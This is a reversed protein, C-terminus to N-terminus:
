HSFSLGKPSRVSQQWFTLILQPPQSLCGLRGAVGHKLNLQQRQKMRPHGSARRVQLSAMGLHGTVTKQWGVGAVGAGAARWAPRVPLISVRAAATPGWASVEAGRSVAGWNQQGLKYQVDRFIASRRLNVMRVTLSTFTVWDHGVRQRGQVIYDMSNDLGSYQLPYGKGGGPSRGLGPISGLDGSNCASEKGASGGAFGLRYSYVCM